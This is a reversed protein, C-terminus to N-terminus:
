WANVDVQIGIYASGCCIRKVGDAGGMTAILESM